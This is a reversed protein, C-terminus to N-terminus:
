LVFGPRFERAENSWTMIVDDGDLRYSRDLELRGIKVVPNHMNATHWPCVAFAPKCEAFYKGLTVCPLYSVAYM